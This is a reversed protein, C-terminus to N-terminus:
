EFKFAIELADAKDKAYKLESDMTYCKRFNELAQLTDGKALLGDGYSDYTNASKPFEETNLKFVALADDAKNENLLRYGLANIDGESVDYAITDIKVKHYLGIADNVNTDFIQKAMEKYVSKKAMVYPKGARMNRVGDIISRFNEGSDNTLIIFGSKADVENHLFTVFGVWGGSHRVVRPENDKSALGWGFGYDTDEGNNLQGPTWAEDLYDKSIITYNALAMNWKYLDELTSYIGGDGRVDNVIDYDNTILDKQNLALQYGFVRNPMNPDVDIQYNYLTTNTMGIPGTISEKLFDRFHQGSVKEVVSALVLYGTNSYEWKDGSQFDLEPSVRYFEKLIEDNGLIYTKTSDEKVFNEAILREYDTLGSTHHLLQRITINDYPFDTLITNVKQDYVLKGAEKLKMIAMGTFQKSVSALRFQSNLSLSDTPNISRLGNSSKFVVKGNEYVLINGTAVGKTKMDNVFNAYTSKSIESTATNSDEKCSFFCASILCVLTLQKFFTM